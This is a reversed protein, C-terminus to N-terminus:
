PSMVDPCCYGEGLCFSQAPCAGLALLTLIAHVHRLQVFMNPLQRPFISDKYECKTSCCKEGIDPNYCLTDKTDTKEHCVIYGTGFTEACTAGKGTGSIPVSSEDSRREVLSRAGIRQNEVAIAGSGAFIALVALTKITFAFM